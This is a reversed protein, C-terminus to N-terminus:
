PIHRISAEPWSVLWAMLWTQVPPRTVPQGQGSVGADDHDAAIGV